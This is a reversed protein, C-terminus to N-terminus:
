QREADVEAESEDENDESDTDVDAAPAEAQAVPEEGAEAEADVEAEAEAEAEAETPAAAPRIVEGAELKPVRTVNLVIRRNDPDVESVEMELEDGEAFLDAPNQLGAVGIQSLPVFGEIDNGLDVAVGKDQ